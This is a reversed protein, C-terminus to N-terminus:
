RRRGWRRHCALALGSFGAAFASRPLRELTGPRAIAVSLEAIRLDGIPTGTGRNCVM